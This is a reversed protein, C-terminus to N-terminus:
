WEALHKNQLGTSQIRDQKSAHTAKIEFGSHFHDLCPIRISTAAEPLPHQRSFKIVLSGM